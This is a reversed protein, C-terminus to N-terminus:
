PAWGKRYSKSLFPQAEPADLLRGREPDYTVSKGSRFSVNGLLVLEAFPAAYSFDSSAPKGGSCARIWEEHHGPRRPIWPEPDKFDKFREEPLLKAEGGHKVALRGKEGIFLSGNMPLERRIAEPPQAEGEFWHVKCPPRDGRAGFSFVAHMWRPGSAPLLPAGETEVRVKGGLRLAWVAPDMLHIAMDGIAGCGFDWWGRWRFPAYASHYPREAAPGLWLDWNLHKPPAPTETPTRLGQKWWGGPRDTLVYVESVPGIAGARLLEVARAYAPHRHLQTGMQTAVGAKRALERVLRAEAVTHTLPKECYVHLGLKLARVTAPAHHHDPTSVVVGDLDPHHIMERWDAYTKADKFRSAASALHRADVDCLAVIDQSAVANLNGGGRGAVGIIGLRLKGSAGRARRFHRADLGLLLGAGVGATQKLFARRTTSRSM